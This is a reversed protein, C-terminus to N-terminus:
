NKFKGGILDGFNTGNSSISGSNSCNECNGDDVIMGIIGDLSIKM